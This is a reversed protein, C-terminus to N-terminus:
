IRNAYEAPTAAARDQGTRLAAWGNGSLVLAFMNGKGLFVVLEIFAFGSDAFNM